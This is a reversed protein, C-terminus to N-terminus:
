AAEQAIREAKRLDEMTNVNFFPDRGKDFHFEAFAPAHRGGAYASMSASGPRGLHAELDDALLVPWLAFTPHTRRGSGSIVIRDSTGAAATLREVLDPPFFPTDCAATVIHGYGKDSAWRMGALVGGLPGKGAVPDPVVPLAFAAFRAPDGNANLVISDVQPQLREIVHALLPKGALSKLGKDGGGLRSANGGALIVGAIKDM